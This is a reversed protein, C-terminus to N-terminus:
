CGNSDALAAKDRAKWTSVLVDSARAMKRRDQAFELIEPLHFYKDGNKPPNGLAALLGAGVLLPIHEPAFGLLWATEETTLRKPLHRLM